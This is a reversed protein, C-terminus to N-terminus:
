PKNQIEFMSLLLAYLLWIFLPVLLMKSIVPNVLTYILLTFILALVLIFLAWKKQNMCSYLILWLSFILILKIYFLSILISQGSQVALVWSLGLMLYLLTWIIFFVWPPPRFKVSSGSSKKVRCFMNTGFGVITPLLFLLWDLASWM